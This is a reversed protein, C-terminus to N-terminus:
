YRPFVITGPIATCQPAPALASFAVIKSKDGHASIHALGPGHCSECGTSEPPTKHLALTKFHPNKYFNLWVDPHCVRCANSGAYGRPLAPQAPTDACLPATEPGLALILGGAVM